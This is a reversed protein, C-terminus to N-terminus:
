SRDRLRDLFHFLFLAVIANRLALVLTRQLEFNMQQGLLARDPRDRPAAAGSGRFL